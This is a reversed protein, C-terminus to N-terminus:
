NGQVSGIGVPIAFWNANDFRDLGATSNEFRQNQDLLGIRGCWSKIIEVFVILRDIGERQSGTRGRREM